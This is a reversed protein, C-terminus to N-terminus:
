RLDDPPGLTARGQSSRGITRRGQKPILSRPLLVIVASPVTDHVTLHQEGIPGRGPQGIALFEPVMHLLDLAATVSLQATLEIQCTTDTLSTSIRPPTPAAM